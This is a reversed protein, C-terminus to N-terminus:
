LISTIIFIAQHNSLPAQNRYDTITIACLYNGFAPHEFILENSEKNYTCSAAFPKDSSFGKRYKAETLQSRKIVINKGQETSKESVRYVLPASLLVEVKDIRDNDRVNIPCATKASSSVKFLPMRELMPSTNNIVKQDDDIHVALSIADANRIEVNNLIEPVGSHIWIIDYAGHLLGLDVTSSYLVSKVAPPIKEKSGAILPYKVDIYENEKKLAVAKGPSAKSGGAISVAETEPVISQAITYFVRLTIKVKGPAIVNGTLEAGIFNTTSSPGTVPQGSVSHTVL